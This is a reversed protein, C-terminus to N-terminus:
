PGVLLALWGLLASLSAAQGARKALPVGSISHRNNTFDDDVAIAHAPDVTVAVAPEHHDFSVTVTQPGTRIRRSMKSSDALELVVDVPLNLKSKAAIQIQSSYGGPARTTEVSRVFLDINGTEDFLIRAQEEAESGMHRGLAAYFDELDPHGYRHVTAYEKLAGHLSQATYIRKLTEFCLTSRAYVLSGISKFDPFEAAPLTIPKTSASVFHYFRAGALQSVRFGPLNVVSGPALHANAYRAEAYSTLGEDLFPIQMENTAVMGQFWQHALEHIVVRELLRSGLLSELEAGGTTILQPYEMGGARRAFAPPHVITLTEHPYKGYAREFFPLGRSINQWTRARAVPTYPPRLLRVKTDGIQRTEDKFDPWATWAFDHVARATARYRSRGAPSGAVKSLKGTSGVVFRTPVDIEIEYTGFDAYFEGHPHFPFHAWTGDPERKAIKPFWQAVFFFDREYGTREVIQPLHAAFEVDLELTEYGDVPAPLPVLIDTRDKPDDATHADPGPWLEVGPFKASTLTKVVLKGPAGNRRGSRSGAERLFLTEAHEFANLYLHFYLHDTPSSSPNTWTITGSADVRKAQTDLRTSLRYSAINEVDTVSPSEEPIPDTPPQETAPGGSQCGTSLLCLAVLSHALRPRLARILLNPM